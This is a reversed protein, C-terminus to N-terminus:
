LNDGSSISVFEIQRFGAVDQLLDIDFASTVQVLHLERLCHFRHPSHKDADVHAM